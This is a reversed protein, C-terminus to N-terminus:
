GRGVANQFPEDEGWYIIRKCHPCRMLENGRMLENFKQPPIGLHCTQCVGKIVPSIAVGGKHEKIEDYKKLLDEDIEKRIRLREKERNELDRDLAELEEQIEKQGEEFKKRFEERRARSAACKEELAEIKEMIELVRDESAAKERELDDIEKLAAGYEKNSKINSLKIKSKETKSELDEIDQEIRHRERKYADRQGLKEEVQEEVLKMEDELAKIKAPLGGKKRKIDRVRVDCDQLGILNGLIVELM